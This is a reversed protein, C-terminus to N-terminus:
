SCLRRLIRKSNRLAEEALSLVFSREASRPIPINGRQSNHVAGNGWERIDHAARALEGTLYKWKRADEILNYLNKQIRKGDSALRWKLVQELTARCVALCAKDFGYRFCATAEAMYDDVREPVNELLLIERVAETKSRDAVMGLKSLMEFAYVQQLTETGATRPLISRFFDRRDQVDMHDDFVMALAELAGPRSTDASVKVGSPRDRVEVALATLFMQIRAERVFSDEYPQQLEKDFSVLCDDGFGFFWTGDADAVGEVIRRLHDLLMQQTSPWPREEQSSKKNVAKPM